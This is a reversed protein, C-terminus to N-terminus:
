VYVEYWVTYSGSATTARFRLQSLDVNRLNTGAHYPGSVTGRNAGAASSPASGNTTFLVNGGGNDEISILNGRTGAALGLSQVGSGTFQRVASTVSNREALVIAQAIENATPGKYTDSAEVAGGIEAASPGGYGTSSSSVASCCTVAGSIVRETGDAIWHDSLYTIEGSTEVGYKRYFCAPTQAKTRYYTISNAAPAWNDIILEEPGLPFNHIKYTNPGGTLYLNGSLDFTAGNATNGPSDYVEVAVGNAGAASGVEYVRGLSGTIYFKGDLPNIAMSTGSSVIGTWPGNHLSVEATSVDIAYVRWAGGASAATYLVGNYFHAANFALPSGDNTFLPTDSLVVKTNVDIVRLANSSTVAYLLFNDPDAGSGASPVTITNINTISGDTFSYEAFAGGSDVLLLKEDDIECLMEFRYDIYTVACDGLLWGDPENIPSESPLLPGSDYLTGAENYYLITYEALEPLGNVDVVYTERVERIMSVNDLCVVQQTVPLLPDTSECKGPAKLVPEAITGSADYWVVTGNSSEKRFVTAPPAVDNNCWETTESSLTPTAGCGFPVFGSPKLAVPESLSGYLYETVKSGAANYGVRWMTAGADSCGQHWQQDPCTDCGSSGGGSSPQFPDSVFPNPATECIGFKGPLTPVFPVCTIEFTQPDQQITFLTLSDCGDAPDCGVESFGFVHIPEPIIWQASLDNMSIPASDPFLTWEDTYNNYQYIIGAGSGTSLLSVGASLWEAGTGSVPSCSDSLRVAVLTEPDIQWLVTGDCPEGFVSVGRTDRAMLFWKGNPDFFWDGPGAQLALGDRDDILQGINTATGTVPDIEIVTSGSAIGALLRGAPDFAFCPYSSPGDPLTPGVLSFTAIPDDPSAKYLKGGTQFYLTPEVADNKFALAYGGVTVGEWMTKGYTTWQKTIPDYSALDGSGNWAWQIAYQDPLYCTSFNVRNGPCECDAVNLAAELQAIVAPDSEEIGTSLNVWTRTTLSGKTVIVLKHTNRGCSM